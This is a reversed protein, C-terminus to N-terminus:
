SKGSPKCVVAVKSLVTVGATDDTNFAVEYAEM